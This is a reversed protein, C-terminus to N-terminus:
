VTYELVCNVPLEAVSATNPLSLVLSVLAAVSGPQTAEEPPFPMTDATMDTNVIGPCVATTRIGHEWGAHRTCHSLAIVAFKSMPYGASAGKVRKGALSAINVIRGSGARKLHPFAARILRFPGKVNVEWLTDLDEESGEEVSVMRNIGANNVLGDIRGFRAAAAAVWREAARPDRADFASVLVRDEEFPPESPVGDPDRVGLSLRYGDEHLRRAVAYGIGRNAGSVLVVRESPPLM